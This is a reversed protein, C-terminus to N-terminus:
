GKRNRTPIFQHLAYIAAASYTEWCGTRVACNDTWRTRVPSADRSGADSDDWGMHTTTRLRLYLSPPTM